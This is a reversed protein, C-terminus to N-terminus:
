LGAAKVIVRALRLADRCHSENQWDTSDPEWAEIADTLIARVEDSFLASVGLMLVPSLVPLTAQIRGVQEAQERHRDLIALAQRLVDLPEAM